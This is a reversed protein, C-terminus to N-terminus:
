ALGLESGRVWSQYMQYLITGTKKVIAVDKVIAAAEADVVTVGVQRRM